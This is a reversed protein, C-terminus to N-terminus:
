VLISSIVQLVAIIMWVIPFVLPPPSSRPRIVQDYTLRSRTNELLSFIRSRISLLSFIIWLSFFLGTL